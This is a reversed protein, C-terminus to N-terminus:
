SFIVYMAENKPAKENQMGIPRGLIQKERMAM